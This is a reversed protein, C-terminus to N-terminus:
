NHSNADTNKKQVKNKIWKIGMTTGNKVKQAGGVAVAKAKSLGASSSTGKKKNGGDKNNELTDVEEVAGIGGAGWQDAWSPAETGM